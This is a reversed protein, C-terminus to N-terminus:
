RRADRDRCGASGELQPSLSVALHQWNTLLFSAGVTPGIGFYTDWSKNSGNEHRSGGGM